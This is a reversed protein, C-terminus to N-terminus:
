SSLVGLDVGGEGDAAGSRGPRERLSGAGGVAGVAGHGADGDVPGGNAGHEADAGPGGVEQGCGRGADGGSVDGRIAGAPVGHRERGGVQVGWFLFVGKSGVSGDSGRILFIGFIFLRASWVKPFLDLVYM